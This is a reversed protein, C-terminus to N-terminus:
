IEEFIVERRKLKGKRSLFERLPEPLRAELFECRQTTLDEIPCKDRRPCESCISEILLWSPRMNEDGIM